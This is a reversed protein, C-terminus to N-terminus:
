DVPLSAAIQLGGRIASTVALKGGTQEVQQRPLAQLVFGLFKEDVAAGYSGQVHVLIHLRDDGVNLWADLHPPRYTKTGARTLCFVKYAAQTARLVTELLRYAELRVKLLQEDGSPQDWQAFPEDVLWTVTPVTPSRHPSIATGEAHTQGPEGEDQVATPQPHDDGGRCELRMADVLAQLAPRLGVNILTPYLRDVARQVGSKRLREVEGRVKYLLSLAGVIRQTVREDLREVDTQSPAVASAARFRPASQAAVLPPRSPARNREGHASRQESNPAVGLMAEVAETHAGALLQEAMTLWVNCASLGTQVNGDLMDAVEKRLEEQEALPWRTDDGHVNCSQAADVENKGRVAM